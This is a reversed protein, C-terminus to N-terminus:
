KQGELNCKLRRTYDSARCVSHLLIRVMIIIKTIIIIIIMTIIIIIIIIIQM